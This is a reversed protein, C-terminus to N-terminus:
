GEGVSPPQTPEAPKNVIRDYAIATLSSHCELCGTPPTYNALNGLDGAGGDDIPFDWGRVLNFKNLQTASVAATPSWGCMGYLLNRVDYGLIGLAVTALSGTHGTYCYVVVPRSPDLIEVNALVAVDKWGVNVAGPVHGKAYDAAGRVSLVQPDNTPDGDDLLAKLAVADFQADLQDTFGRLYTDARRLVARAVTDGATLGINPNAFSGGGNATTQTSAEVRRVGLDDPYRYGAALAKDFTWAQMGMMLSKSWPYNAANAPDEIRVVNILLSAMNGDGGVYSVVVVNRDAPILTDGEQLYRSPFDRLPVNVAGPIHGLAYDSADRTDLVFPDNAPDADFFLEAVADANITNLGTKLIGDVAAAIEAQSWTVAPTGGGGGNCATLILPLACWVLTRGGQRRRIM